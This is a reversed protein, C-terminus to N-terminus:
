VLGGVNRILFRHRPAVVDVKDLTFPAGGMGHYRAEPIFGSRMEAALDAIVADFARDLDDLGIIKIRVTDAM